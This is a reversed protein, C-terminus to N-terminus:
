SIVNYEEFHIRGSTFSLADGAKLWLFDPGDYYDASSGTFLGGVPSQVVGSGNLDPFKATISGSTTMALHYLGSSATATISNLIIYLVAGGSTSFSIRHVNKLPTFFFPTSTSTAGSNAGIGINVYLATGNLVPLLCNNINVRAYKGAPVTYTGTQSGTSVPQHNFPIIYPAAM